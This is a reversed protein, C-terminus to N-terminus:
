SCYFVSTGKLNCRGNKTCHAPSPYSFTRIININENNNLYRVRYFKETNFIEKKRIGYTSPIILAKSLFSNEIEEQTFNSFNIKELEKLMNLYVDYDPFNELDSDYLKSIDKM